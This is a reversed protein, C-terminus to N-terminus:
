NATIDANPLAKLPRQRRRALALVAGLGAVGLCSPEPEIVPSEYGSIEGGPFATTHISVYSEEDFLANQLAAEAQAASGGNAALFASSYTSSLTLDLTHIYTGSTVGTPFSPMVIAVGATGTLPASTPANLTCATTTGALGSFEFNVTSLTHATSDLQLFAGGTGPSGTPLVNFGTLETDFQFIVARARNAAGVAILVTAILAARTFTLKRNAQRM